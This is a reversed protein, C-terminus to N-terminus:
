KFYGHNLAEEASIRRSGNRVLMRSILDSLQENKILSRDYEVNVIRRVTEGQNADFFPTSGVELEYAICGLSWIDISQNFSSKLMIEPAAYDLTGVHDQNNNYCSSGFDGIKYSGHSIFINDPKLDRHWINRRHLYAVGELIQQLVDKIIKGKDKTQQLVCEKLSSVIRHKKM